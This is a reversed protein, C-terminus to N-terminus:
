QVLVSRVLGTSKEMRYYKQCCLSRGVTRMIREPDEAYCRTFEEAEEDTCLSKFYELLEQKSKGVPEKRRKDDQGIQRLLRTFITVFETFYRQKSTSSSCSSSSSQVRLSSSAPSSSHLSSSSPAVAPPEDDSETDSERSRKRRTAANPTRGDVDGIKSSSASGQRHLHAETSEREIKMLSRKLSSRQWSGSIANDEKGELFPLIEGRIHQQIQLKVVFREAYRILLQSLGKANVAGGAGYNLFRNEVFRPISAAIKTDSPLSEFASKIFVPSWSYLSRIDSLRLYRVGDLEFCRVWINELQKYFLVPASSPEDRGNLGDEVTAVAGREQSATPHIAEPPRPAISPLASSSVAGSTASSCADEATRQRKNPSLVPASTSSDHPLRREPPVSISDSPSQLPHISGQTQLIRQELIDWMGEALVAYANCSGQKLHQELDSRNGKWTCQVPLSAGWSQLTHHHKLM